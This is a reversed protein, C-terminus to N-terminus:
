IDSTIDIIISFCKDVADEINSAVSVGNLEALKFVQEVSKLQSKSFRYEDDEKLLLAVTTSPNKNSADILEAISFVGTMRPTICFLQILCNKKQREEEKQAEDNWNDVVPNFMTISSCTKNMSSIFKDRWNSNNYTGGLFIDCIPSDKVESVM